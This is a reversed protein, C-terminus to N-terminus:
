FDNQKLGKNCMVDADDRGGESITEERTDCGVGRMNQPKIISYSSFELRDAGGRHQWSCNPRDATVHCSPKRESTKRNERWNLERFKGKKNTKKKKM